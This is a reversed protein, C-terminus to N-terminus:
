SSGGQFCISEKWVKARSASARRGVKRGPFLLDGEFRGEQVFLGGESRDGHFCFSEKWIEEM